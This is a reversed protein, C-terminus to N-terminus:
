GSGRRGLPFRFLELAWLLWILLGVGAGVLMYEATDVRPQSPIDASRLLAVELWPSLGLQSRALEAAVATDDALGSDLPSIASLCSAEEAELGLQVAGVVRLLASATDKPADRFIATSGESQAALRTALVIQSPETPGDPPLSRLENGLARADRVAGALTECKARQTTLAQAGAEIRAALSEQRVALAVGDNVARVFSEAWLDAVRAAIAPDESSATFRWEGDKPHPMRLAEFLKQAAERTDIVGELMLQEVVPDWVEDSYALTELVITERNIYGAAEDSTPDEVVREVNHHVIVSAEAQYRNAALTGGLAFLLAGFLGALFAGQWGRCLAQFLREISSM